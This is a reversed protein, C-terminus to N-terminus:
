DLLVVDSSTPALILSTGGPKISSIGTVRVFRGSAPLTVGAPLLVDPYVGSGDDFIFGYNTPAIVRGWTRVLLGVNNTGPGTKGMQGSAPPGADYEFDGGILSRNGMGLPEVTAPDGVTVGDARIQREIGNRTELAGSVSVLKDMPVSAAWVVRIGAVRDQQEIYFFGDFAGSIVVNSIAVREGDSERKIEVVTDFSPAPVYEYAGIDFGAGQPRPNGDLDDIPASVDTGTDICFSASMLHYDGSARDAFLPNYLRNDGGLTPDWSPPDFPTVGNQWFDCHNFTPSSPDNRYVAGGIPSTGYSVITNRFTSNSNVLYVNGGSTVAVNDSITCNVFSPSSLSCYVGGGMSASNGAILCNEVTIASTCSAFSIGGGRADTGTTQNSTIICRRITPTASYCYIGAYQVASNVCILCDTIIANGGINCYVGKDTNFSIECDTITPSSQYCYVGAGKNGKIKCNSITPSVYACYVGGGNTSPKGNTITFGDIVANNAGTVANGAEGGDIVTLNGVPYRESRSTETGIFGGYLGIQWRLTVNESYTGKAVWVENNETTAANLGDQVRQFATAWAIGNGGPPADCDVFVTANASACLLLLVAALTLARLTGLM